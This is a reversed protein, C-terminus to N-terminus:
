SKQQTNRVENGYKIKEEVHKKEKTALNYSVRQKRFHSACRLRLLSANAGKGLSSGKKNTSVMNKRVEKWKDVNGSEMWRKM